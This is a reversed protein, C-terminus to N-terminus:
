KKGGLRKITNLGNFEKLERMANDSAKQSKKVGSRLAAVTASSLILIATNFTEADMIGYYKLISLAIIFMVCIYTKWGSLKDLFSKM